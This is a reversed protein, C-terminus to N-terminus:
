PLPVYFIYREEGKWHMTAYYAIYDLLLTELQQGNKTTKPGPYNDISLTIYGSDSISIYICKLFEDASINSDLNDRENNYFSTLLEPHQCIQRLNALGDSDILPNVYIKYRNNGSIDINKPTVCAVSFAECKLPSAEYLSSWEYRLGVTWFEVSKTNSDSPSDLNTWNLAAYLINLNSCKKHASELIGDRYIKTNSKERIYGPVAYQPPVYSPFCSFYGFVINGNEDKLLQAEYVCTVAHGDEIDDNSELAYQVQQRDYYLFHSSPFEFDFSVYKPSTQKDIGCENMGHYESILFDNYQGQIFDTWFNDEKSYEHRGKKDTVLQFCYSYSKSTSVVFRYLYQPSNDLDELNIKKLDILKNNPTHIQAEQCKSREDNDKEGCSTCLLLCCIM